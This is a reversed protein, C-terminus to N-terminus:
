REHSRYFRQSWLVGGLTDVATPLQLVVTYSRWAHCSICALSSVWMETREMCDIGLYFHQVGYNEKELQFTPAASSRTTVLRRSIEGLRIKPNGLTRDENGLLRHSLVLCSLQTRREVPTDVPHRFCYLGIGSTTIIRSPSYM